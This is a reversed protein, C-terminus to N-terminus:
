FADHNVESQNQNPTNQINKLFIGNWELLLLFESDDHSFLLRTKHSPLINQCANLTRRKTKESQRNQADLPTCRSLDGRFLTSVKKGIVRIVLLRNGEIRYHYRPLLYRTTLLLSSFLFIWAGASFIKEYGVTNNKLALFSVFLIVTALVAVWSRKKSPPSYQM